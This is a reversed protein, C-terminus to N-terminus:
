RAVGKLHELAEEERDFVLIFKTIGLMEFTDRHSASLNSFCLTGGIERLREIIGLLLSVGISNIFDTEGFNLVVKHIGNEVFRNCEQVLSEGALNNLYGQSRIVVADGAMKSIVKFNMGKM